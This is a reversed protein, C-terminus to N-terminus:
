KKLGRAAAIFKRVLDTEGEKRWLAGVMIAPPAPRLSLLKVRPGVMCALCSPVLAVGRGTEVDAVLSTIGDHEAVVRPKRGFPRFLEALQEHYEPYDRRSYAILGEDAVRELAVSKKGALPHGPAVAVCLHYEALREFALQKGLKGPPPVTLAVQLKEAALGALMEETSLDHLVVRVAPFAAQFTRLAQPLIRVTLTPAYGVPLEGRAGGAASRATQVAQEARQLVARAEDLFVRGAPTLRVSKATRELLAVGLEEELDRVQRSVGPQSVHLKGAARSVNEAEAVAVFYRL